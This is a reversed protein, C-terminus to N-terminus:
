AEWRRGQLRHTLTRLPAVCLDTIEDPLEVAELVAIVVHVEGLGKQVGNSGPCEYHVAITIPEEGYGNRHLGVPRNWVGVQPDALVSPAHRDELRLGFLKLLKRQRKQSSIPVRVSNLPERRGIRALLRSPRTPGRLGVHRAAPPWLAEPDRGLGISPGPSPRQ